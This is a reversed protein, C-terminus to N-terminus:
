GCAWEFAMTQLDLQANGGGFNFGGFHQDFESISQHPGCSRSCPAASIIADPAPNIQTLIVPLAQWLSASFDSRFIM